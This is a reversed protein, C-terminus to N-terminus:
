STGDGIGFLTAIDRQSMRDFDDPEDIEGELFGLRAPSSCASQCVLPKGDKTIVFPEGAAAREVLEALRHAAEEITVTHM